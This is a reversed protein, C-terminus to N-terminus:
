VAIMAPKREQESRRYEKWLWFLYGSATGAIASLSILGWFHPHTPDATFFWVKEPMLVLVPLMGALVLVTSGLETLFSRYIATWYSVGTLSSELPGWYILWSVLLPALIILPGTDADPAFFRYGYIVLLLGLGKGATSLMAAVLARWGNSTELRQNRGSVLYVTVGVPGFLVALLLWAWRLGQVKSKGQILYWAMLILSVLSLIMWLDLFRIVIAATGAVLYGDMLDFFEVEYAQVSIGMHQEFATSFDVGGAMELFIDRVDFLSKGLGDPALLYEVALQSMPYYYNFGILPHTELVEDIVGDTKYAIPNRSGYQATLTDLRDKEKVPSASTGGVVAEALGESFWAQTRVEPSINAVDRGKLLSEIVHVLEHKLVPKYNGLNTNRHEHDLSWAIIGGYYARMGWQQPYYNKYSYIHIKDQDPPFRLMENPDIGFETILEALLEEAIGALEVRSEASAGDSYIIFNQSEYPNGDHPWSERIYWSGHRILKGTNQDQSPNDDQFM